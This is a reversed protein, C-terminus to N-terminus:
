SAVGHKPPPMVPLRIRVRYPRVSSYQCGSYRGIRLSTTGRHMSAAMMVCRARESDLHAM